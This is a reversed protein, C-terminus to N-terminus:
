RLGHRHASAQFPVASEREGVVMAGMSGAMDGELESPLVLREHEHEAAHVGVSAGTAASGVRFWAYEGHMDVPLLHEVLDYIRVSEGLPRNEVHPAGM